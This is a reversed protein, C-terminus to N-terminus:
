ATFYNHTLVHTTCFKESQFDSFKSLRFSVGCLQNLKSKLPIIQVSFKLRTEVHIGLYKLSDVENIPDAGIFIQLRNVVVKNTVAM